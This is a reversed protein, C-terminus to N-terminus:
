LRNRILKTRYEFKEMKTISVIVSSVNTMDGFFSNLFNMFRLM